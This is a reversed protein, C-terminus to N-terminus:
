GNLAPLLLRYPLLVSKMAPDGQLVFSYLQSPHNGRMHYDLKAFNITQGIEWLEHTFLGEYFSRHLIDHEPDTGFGTSSWHAVSGYTQESMFVESLAEVGPQAFHGDLCDMSLIILPENNLWPTWNDIPDDLNILNGAWARVAGHGRYNLFTAGGDPPNNVAQDILTRMAAIAQPSNDTLCIQEASYDSPLGDAVRGNAMCFNGATDTNDALFLVNKQWRGLEVRRVSEFHIIKKVQNQAESPSQVPLRGVTLDPLLDDGVILSYSYDSANLGVYKDTYVIDTLVFNPEPKWHSCQTNGPNCPLHRPNIHGDGMLLLHRPAVPWEAFAHQLYSRIAGPLPLGYGYQNIVHHVDVIHTRYGGYAPQARHAALAQAQAMFNAHSVVLWSAGQPPDLNPGVYRSISLPLRVNNAHTAIFSASGSGAGFTFTYPASASVAVSSLSKPALRDSIEWVLADGHAFGGVQYSSNGDADYFQLQEGSAVFRRDYEVTVRNMYYLAPTSLPPSATNTVPTRYVVHVHNVGDNLLGAPAELTVNVSRSGTWQLDGLNTDDGNLYIAVDHDSRAERSLIEVTIMANAGPQAPVPLTIEHVRELVPWDAAIPQKQVREWVWADPENPSSEWDATWVHTFAIDPERTISERFSSAAPQAPSGSISALRSPAGDAWLWFVNETLFQRELRSGDFQWGYFRLKEHPEFLANGNGVFQYAVPQGRYMMEFTNPNVAEVDMGAAALDQYTLEYIGDENVAIKFTERNAPVAVPAEPTPLPLGRWAQGQEFNLVMPAIAQLAAGDDGALPPGTLEGTGTFRVVVELQPAHHLVGGVPNYQLPYLELRVLRLDRYYMPESLKYRVAPYLADRSYIEQSPVASTPAGAGAVAQLTDQPTFLAPRAVAEVRSVATSIVPLNSSVEVEAMAEPPLALLTTFLPLAPAGAEAIAAQLGEISVSGRSDVHPAPTNLVFRLEQPSSQLVRAVGADGHPQALAAAALSFDRTLGWVAAIALLLTLLPLFRTPLRKKSQKIM